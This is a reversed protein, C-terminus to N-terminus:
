RFINDLHGDKIYNSAKENILGSGGKLMKDFRAKSQTENNDFYFTGKFKKYFDREREGFLINNTAEGFGYGLFYIEQSNFLVKKAEERDNYITPSKVPSIYFQTQKIQTILLRFFKEKKENSIGEINQIIKHFEDKYNLIEKNITGMPRLINLMREDLLHNTDHTFRLMAEYNVKENNLFSIVKEEILFDYNFVIFTLKNFGNKLEKPSYRGLLKEIWGGEKPPYIEHVLQYLTIATMTMFHLLNAMEEQNDEVLERYVEDVTKVGAKIKLYEKLQELTSRQFKFSPTELNAYDKLNTSKSCVYDLILEFFRPVNGYAGGYHEPINKYSSIYSTPSSLFELLGLNLPLGYESSAGAGIVITKM